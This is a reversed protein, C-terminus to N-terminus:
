EVSQCSERDQLHFNVRRAPPFVLERVLHTFRRPSFLGIKIKESARSPLCEKKFVEDRQPEREHDAGGKDHERESGRRSRVRELLPANEEPPRATKKFKV